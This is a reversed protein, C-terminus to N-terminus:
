NDEKNKLKAQGTMLLPLLYSRLSQLQIIEKSNTIFKEFFPEMENEFNEYLYSETPICIRSQM